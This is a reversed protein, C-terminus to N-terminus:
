AWLEQILTAGAPVLQIPRGDSTRLQTQPEVGLLHYVSCILDAPTVPRDAPSEGTPDSTGILQGGR